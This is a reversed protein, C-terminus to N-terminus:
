LHRNKRKEQAVARQSGLEVHDDRLGVADERLFSVHVAGVQDDTCGLRMDHRLVVHRVPQVGADEDGSNGRVDVEQQVRPRGEPIEVEDLASHRRSRRDVNGVDRGVARSHNLREIEM